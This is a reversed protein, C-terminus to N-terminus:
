ALYDLVAQTLVAAGIPLADEDINFKPHHWPYLCDKKKNGVGLRMMSGPVANAFFAFDEGGMMPETLEVVGRKGLVKRASEALMGTMDDDCILVPYGKIYNLEYGGGASSTIRSIMKEMMKPIRKRLAPDITRVTGTMDVRDAVINFKYGGHITGVTLVMPRVPDVMRSPITQLAQIVEASLVIADTGQHPRAGHASEGTVALEFEDAAAMMPGWRLGVKGVPVVPDVHVGFIADVKPNELVGERIMPEAGGPPAEESPQFIFKVNGEFESVRKSLLMVCGLVSTMNGDHGCAHMVGKNKSVYSVKLQETIPLADMDARVAVTRGKEKGKLLGVVGTKAVGTKVKCGADSLLSAIYKSTKKEEYGLEPYQHIRRRIAVLRSKLKGAENLLETAM